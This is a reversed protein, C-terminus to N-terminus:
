FLFRLLLSGVSGLLNGFGGGGGGGREPPDLAIEVAKLLNQSAQYGTADQKKEFLRAAVEADHSAAAYNNLRFFAVGRGLYAPAYEADITIATNYHEVAAEYNGRRAEVVAWGYFNEPKGAYNPIGVTGQIYSSELTTGLLNANVLYADRLDTGTLDVGVLVANSLNAGNLSAGSLNAGSLDAGSLNARSLNARSLDAGRLDAGVLNSLVLGAGSLDCQPCQNTSLLQNTHQANEAKVPTSFITGVFLAVSTLLKFKM